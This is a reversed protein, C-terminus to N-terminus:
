RQFRFNFPFDLMLACVPRGDRRAPSLVLNNLYNTVEMAFLPHSSRRIRITQPEVRGTSDVNFDVLVEGEIGKEHLEKPWRVVARKMDVPPGPQSDTTDPWLKLKTRPAVAFALQYIRARETTPELLEVPGVVPEHQWIEFRYRYAGRAPADFQFAGDESTRDRAVVHGATDELVVDVCPLKAGTASDVAIGGVLGQAYLPAGAVLLALSVTIRM